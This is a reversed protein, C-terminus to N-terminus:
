KGYFNCYLLVFCMIITAVSSCLNIVSAASRLIAIRSSLPIIALMITLLLRFPQNEITLEDLAKESLLITSLICALNFSLYKASHSRGTGKLASDNAQEAAM